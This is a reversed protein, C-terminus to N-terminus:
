RVRAKTHFISTFRPHHHHHSLGKTLLEKRKNFADKAMAIRVKVYSHRRGDETIVSGLYKFSKVQELRLGDVTINVVGGGDWRVVIIKTKQVNIKMGVNKVTDNLKNMLRQLGMETSAVMGQDDTFRVDSILQGGVLGGEGMDELAEIMMVEAYISFLLPSLPCGQRVGRGIVGPDSDGGVTRVVAEQRMYLDQLLRRDRWDIHLSKLIEFMKVWNMRDFAKEFDVFCIYVENGCELNRECLTRM